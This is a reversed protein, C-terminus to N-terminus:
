VLQTDTGNTDSPRDPCCPWAALPLDDVLVDLQARSNGHFWQFAGGATQWGRHVILNPIVALVSAFHLSVVLIESRQTQTRARMHEPRVVM